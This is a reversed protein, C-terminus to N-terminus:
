WYEPMGNVGNPIKRFDAIGLAKQTSNLACHDTGVLQLFGSHDELLEEIMLYIPYPVFLLVLM